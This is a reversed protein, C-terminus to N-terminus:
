AKRAEASRVDGNLSRPPSLPEAVHKRTAGEERARQWDRRLRESTSTEGRTLDEISMGELAVQLLGNLSRWVGRISCSPAHVCDPLAGPHSDCFGDPFLPGGLVDIAQWLTMDSPERDLRYGGSAGRTSKVLGGKRLIRMLKAVYEASLGEAQAIEQISMPERGDHRALQVLCRLGYEEQASLHM